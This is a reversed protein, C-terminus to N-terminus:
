SATPPMSLSRGGAQVGMRRWRPPVILGRRLAVALLAASALLCLTLAVVSAEAGFVGGSLWDPGNRTSVLWGDAHTGSVPIGYVTGQMFNWAAHLGMCVWLSRTVLYLLGFLIGAEIAIAAGAWLTAGPNGLHVAGFFLASILLALWTGLGEETIRYLVGRFMIEEGVGAGLGVTLAAVIWHPHANGGVVHYSGLLWLVGVVASFLAVGAVLGLAGDPLLRRLDLERLRRHEISKVLVLYAILPLVARFALQWLPGDMAAKAVSVARAGFGVAVSLIAFVVVFFVIRALPSFVAWRQWAPADAPTVFALRYHPM